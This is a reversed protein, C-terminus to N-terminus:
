ATATVSVWALAFMCDSAQSWARLAQAMQAAEPHEAVDMRQALYETMITVPDYCEYHATLKVNTFGAARALAGLKRGMQMDGGNASQMGRYYALAADVAPESPALLNGSWDPICAGLVGGPKLVRRM